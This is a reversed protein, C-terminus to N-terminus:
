RRVPFGQNRLKNACKDCYYLEEGEILIHFSGEQDEHNECPRSLQMHRRSKARQRSDKSQFSNDEKTAINKRSVSRAPSRPQM